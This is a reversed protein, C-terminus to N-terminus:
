DRVVECDNKIVQLIGTTSSYLVLMSCIKHGFKMFSQQLTHLAVIETAGRAGKAILM